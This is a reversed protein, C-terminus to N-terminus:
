YLSLLLCLPRVRTLPREGDSPLRKPEERVFAALAALEAHEPKNLDLRQLAEQVVRDEPRERPVEELAHGLYRQTAKRKLDFFGPESPQTNQSFAGCGPCQLPM